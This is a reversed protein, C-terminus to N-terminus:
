PASLQYTLLRKRGSLAAEPGELSRNTLLPAAQQIQPKQLRKIKLVYPKDETLQVITIEKDENAPLLQDTASFPTSGIAQSLDSTKIHWCTLGSPKTRKLNV